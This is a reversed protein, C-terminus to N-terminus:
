QEYGKSEFDSVIKALKARTAKNWKTTTDHIKNHSCVYPLHEAARKCGKECKDMHAIVEKIKDVAGNRWVFKKKSEESSKSM